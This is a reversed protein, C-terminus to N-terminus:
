INQQEVTACALGPQRFGAGLQQTLCRAQQGIDIGHGIADPAHRGAPLRHQGDCKVAHDCAIRHKIQDARKVFQRCRGAEFQAVFGQEPSDLRQGAALGVQGDPRYEIRGCQGESGCADAAPRQTFDMEDIGHRGVM